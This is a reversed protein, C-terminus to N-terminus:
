DECYESPIRKGCHDCYLDTDEWNVDQACPKWGTNYGDKLDGAVLSYNEKFCPHCLCAGDELVLHLGYGGPWAYPTRYAIALDKLTEIM